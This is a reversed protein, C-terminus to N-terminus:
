GSGALRRREWSDRCELSSLFLIDRHLALLHGGGKARKQWESPGPLASM